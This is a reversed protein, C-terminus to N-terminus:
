SPWWSRAFRNEVDPTRTWGHRLVKARHYERGHRTVVAVLEGGHTWVLSLVFGNEGFPTTVPEDLAYTFQVLPPVRDEESTQSAENM